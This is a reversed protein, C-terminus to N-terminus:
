FILLIPMGQNNYESFQYSHCTRITINQFSTLSPWNVIIDCGILNNPNIPEINFQKIKSQNLHFIAVRNRLTPVLTGFFRYRQLTALHFTKTIRFSKSFIRISRCRYATPAPSVWYRDPLIRYKAAIMFVLQFFEPLDSQNIDTLRHCWAYYDDNQNIPPWLGSAAPFM